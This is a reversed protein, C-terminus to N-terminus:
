RDHNMRIRNFRGCEVLAMGSVARSCHKFIPVWGIWNLASLAIVGIFRYFLSRKALWYKVWWSLFRFFLRSAARFIVIGPWCCAILVKFMSMFLVILVSNDYESEWHPLRDGRLYWFVLRLSTESAGILWTKDNSTVSTLRKLANTLM